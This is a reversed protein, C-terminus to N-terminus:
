CAPAATPAPARRARLQDLEEGYRREHLDCLRVDRTAARHEDSGALRRVAYELSCGAADCGLSAHDPEPRLRM